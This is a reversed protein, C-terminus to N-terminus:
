VGVDEIRLRFLRAGLQPQQSNSHFKRLGSIEKQSGYLKDHIMHDRIDGKFLSRM